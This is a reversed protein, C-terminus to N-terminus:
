PFPKLFINNVLLLLTNIDAVFKLIKIWGRDGVM